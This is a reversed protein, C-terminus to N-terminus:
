RSRALIPGRRERSRERFLDGVPDQSVGIGNNFMMGVHYAAEANGKQALEVTREFLLENGDAGCAALALALLLGRLGRQRFM